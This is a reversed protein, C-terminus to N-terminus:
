SVLQEFDSNEADEPEAPLQTVDFEFVYGDRKGNNCANRLVKTAKFGHKQLFLHSGTMDESVLIILRTRRRPSLKEQLKHVMQTGIEGRQWDPHVMLFLIEIHQPCIRYVMFGVPVDAKYAVGCVTGRVGIADLFAKESPAEWAEWADLIDLVGPMM